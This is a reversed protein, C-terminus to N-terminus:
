ITGTTPTDRREDHNVGWLEADCIHLPEGRAVRSHEPCRRQDLCEGKPHLALWARPTKRVEM